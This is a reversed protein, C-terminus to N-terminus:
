VRRLQRALYLLLLAGALASFAALSFPLAYNGSVDRAVGGLWSGAGAALFAFFYIEAIRRGAQFAPFLERVLVAYAPVYGGFGLGILVVAVLIIAYSDAAALLVVGIVHVASVAALVRYHGFRQSLRGMALRSVLTVGLMVSTIAAATPPALGSEEGFATLHGIAIFTALNFLAMCLGLLFFGSRDIIVRAPEAAAPNTTPQPPPAPRFAFACAFLILGAAVGYSWITQRWGYEEASWRLLPPLALGGVSQGSAAIAIALARQRDFWQSVAAALPGFFAGQGIGGVLVGYALHLTLLNEASAAIVLGTGTAVAAIASIGFFGFRDLMRGLLLSGAAAGVMASTHVLAITSAGVQWERALPKLLIPVSTVSGFSISAIVLTVCAVWWGYPTQVSPPSGVRGGAVERGQAGTLQM